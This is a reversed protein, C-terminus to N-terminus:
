LLGVGHIDMQPFKQLVPPRARVSVTSECWRIKLGARRGIGGSRRTPFVMTGIYLPLEAHFCAQKVFPLMIVSLARKLPNKCATMPRAYTMIRSRPPANLFNRRPALKKTRPVTDARIAMPQPPPPPPPPPPPSAGVALITLSRGRCPAFRAWVVVMTLAIFRATSSRFLLAPSILISYSPNSSAVACAPWHSGALHASFAWDAAWSSSIMPQIPGNLEPQAATSIGIRFSAPSAM